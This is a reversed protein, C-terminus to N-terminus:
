MRSITSVSHALISEYIKGDAQFSVLFSFFFFLRRRTHREIHFPLFRVSSSDFYSFLTLLNVRCEIADCVRAM